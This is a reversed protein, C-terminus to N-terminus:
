CQTHTHTNVELCAATALSYPKTDLLRRNASGTKFMVESMLGVAQSCEPHEHDSENDFDDGVSHALNALLSCLVASLLSARLVHRIEPWDVLRYLFAFADMLSRIGFYGQVRCCPNHVLSFVPELYTQM